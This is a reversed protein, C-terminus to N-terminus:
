GLQSKMGKHQATFLCSTPKGFSSILGAEAHALFLGGLPHVRLFCSLYAQKPMRWSFGEWLTCEKLFCSLFLVFSNIIADDHAVASVEFQGDSVLAFRV